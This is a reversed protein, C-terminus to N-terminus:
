REWRCRCVCGGCAECGTPGAVAATGALGSKRMSIVEFVAGALHICARDARVRGRVDVRDGDRFGEPVGHLCYDRDASRLIWTGGELRPEHRLSGSLTTEGGLIAALLITMTTM